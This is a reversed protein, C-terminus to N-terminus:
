PLEVDSSIFNTNWGADELETTAKSIFENEADAQKDEDRENYPVEFEKQIMFTLSLKATKQQKAPKKKPM